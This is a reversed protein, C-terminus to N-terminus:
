MTELRAYSSFMTIAKLFNLRWVHPHVPGKDEKGSGSPTHILFSQSYVSDYYKHEQVMTNNEKNHCTEFNRLEKLCFPM